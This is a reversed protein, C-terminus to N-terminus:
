LIAPTLEKLGASLRSLTAHASRVAKLGTTTVDFYTRAKGGREPTPDGRGSRVLGKEELRELATYIGALAVERGSHEEIERAIAMGYANERTRLIALLVMLELQSLYDRRRMIEINPFYGANLLRASGACFARLQFLAFLSSLRRSRIM